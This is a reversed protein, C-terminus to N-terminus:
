FSLFRVKKLCIYRPQPTDVIKMQKKGNEETWSFSREELLSEGVDKRALLEVTAAVAQSRIEIQLAAITYWELYYDSFARFISICNRGVGVKNLKGYLTEDDGLLEFLEAATGQIILTETDVMVLGLSDLFELLPKGEVVTRAFKVLNCRFCEKHTVRVEALKGILEFWKEKPWSNLLRLTHEHTALPDKEFVADARKKHM